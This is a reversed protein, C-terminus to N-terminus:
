RCSSSTWTLARRSDPRCRKFIHIANSGMVPVLTHKLRRLACGKYGRCTKQWRAGKVAMM